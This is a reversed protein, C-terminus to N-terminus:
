AASVDDQEQRQRATYAELCKTIGSSTVGVIPKLNASINKKEASDKLRASLDPRFKPVLPKLM